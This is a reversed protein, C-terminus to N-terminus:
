EPLDFNVFGLKSTAPSNPKLRFDNKEPDVFLPDAIISNKDLGKEQWEEFSMGGFKMEGDGESWYLNRDFKVNFNGFNGSVAVGQNWYVINGEFIFSIHEESRSRQVQWDRALVFINNRVINERGYHQHFGGHTTRYVLNNEAVIDTSGEDFYIGWGGYKLGAIDHFVNNRVVTGPQMGLTYIGGMDSLIPGDGNSRKGLHHVHNFEVVNDRALTKGYGWTWGVSFGSYYFDHIHNHAFRNNYSQGVWIGIAPHFLLAGDYIHCKSIENGFTQEAENDRIVAEGIKVGGGGMDFLNCNVARNNQCGMALELAYNGIHSIDCNELSCNRAGVGYFAGPVGIAAQSFGGRESDEPLWWEAHSFALGKFSLNEVFKGAQPDGELRVIQDLVPAIVEAKSMDEDSTPTYYIKGAKPDLYWEGANGLKEFVNEVYYLDGPDLRFVSRKLFKVLKNAEDVGEIPLHSDVWRCMVVMEADEIKDWAKLDGEKFRFNTQGEPWNDTADPSEEVNLYGKAPYRARIRREGNVWMERFFWEGNKVADIEATWVKKGNVEEQKWGTILRGGSIVPKEGEYAAFTVPCEATGSDEPMFVLTESLFHTGGRVSVTVAQSLKGGQQERLERVADRASELTAFPGDTKADNPSDLKGSWQDNGNLAVYFAPSAKAQETGSLM